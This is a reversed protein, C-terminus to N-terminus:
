EAHSKRATSSGTSRKVAHRDRLSSSNVPADHTKLRNLARVDRLVGYLVALVALAIFLNFTWVGLIGGISLFLATGAGFVELRGLQNQRKPPEMHEIPANRLDRYCSM